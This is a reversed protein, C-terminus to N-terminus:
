GADWGIPLVQHAADCSCGACRSGRSGARSGLCASCRTVAAPQSAARRLQRPLGALLHPRGPQGSGLRLRHEGGRKRTTLAAAPGVSGLLRTGTAALDARGSVHRGAAPQTAARGGWGARCAPRRRPGGRHQLWLQRGGSGDSACRPGGTARGPRSDPPQGPGHEAGGAGDTAGGAVGGTRGGHMSWPGAATACRGDASCPLSPVTGQPQQQQRHPLRLGPPQVRHRGQM